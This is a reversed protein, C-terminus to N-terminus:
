PLIGLDINSGTFFTPISVVTLDTSNNNIDFFEVKHQLFENHYETNPVLIEIEDPSFLKDSAAKLSIESFYWFGNRVVFRIGVSNGSTINPTFNVQQDQYWKTEAGIPITLMGIKQGLPDNDIIQTGNVGVLYIDVASTIGVLNASGSM